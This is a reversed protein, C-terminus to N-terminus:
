EALSILGGLITIDRPTLNFDQQYPISEVDVTFTLQLLEYLKVRVAKEDEESFNVTGDAQVSGNCEQIIKKKVSVYLANQEELKKLFQVVTRMSAVPLNKIANLKDLTEKAERSEFISNNFVIM